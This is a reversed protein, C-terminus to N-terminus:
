FLHNVYSIIRDLVSSKKGCAPLALLSKQLILQDQYISSLNNGHNNFVAIPKNIYTANFSKFLHDLLSYEFALSLNSPFGGYSEWCKRSFFLSGTFINQDGAYPCKYNMWARLLHVGDRGAPIYFSNGFAFDIGQHLFPRVSALSLPSYYFDDSNLWSLYKTSTSNLGLNLADPLGLGSGRKYLLPLDPFLPIVVDPITSTSSDDVIIILKPKVLQMSLSSLCVVLANSSDKCPIVVSLNLPM